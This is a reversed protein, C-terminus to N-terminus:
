SYFTNLFFMFVYTHAKVTYQNKGGYEFYNYKNYMTMIECNKRLYTEM